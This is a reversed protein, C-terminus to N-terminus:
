HKEERVSLNLYHKRLSETLQSGFRLRNPRYTCSLHCTHIVRPLIEYRRNNSPGNSEVATPICACVVKFKPRCVRMRAVLTSPLEDMCTLMTYCDGGSIEWQIYVQWPVEREYQAGLWVSIGWGQCADPHPGLM